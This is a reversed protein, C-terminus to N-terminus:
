RAMHKLHMMFMAPKLDAHSVCYQEPHLVYPIGLRMCNKWLPSQPEPHIWVKIIQLRLQMRILSWRVEGRYCLATAWIGLSVTEMGMWRPTAHNGIRNLSYSAQQNENAVDKQGSLRVHSDILRVQDARQISLIKGAVEAGSSSGFKELTVLRVDGADCSAGSGFVGGELTMKPNGSSSDFAYGEGDIYVHSYGNVTITEYDQRGDGYDGGAYVSGSISLANDSSLRPNDETHSAYYKCKGIAGAGIHLHTSGNVTGRYSGGFVRGNVTGGVLNVFILDQKDGGTM